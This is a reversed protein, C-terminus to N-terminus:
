QKSNSAITALVLCYSGILAENRENSQLVSYLSEPLGSNQFELICREPSDIKNNRKENRDM